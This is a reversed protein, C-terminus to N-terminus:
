IQNIIQKVRLFLMRNLRAGFERNHKGDCQDSMVCHTVKITHVPVM